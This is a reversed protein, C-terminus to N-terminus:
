ASGDCLTDKLIAPRTMPRNDNHDPNSRGWDLNFVYTNRLGKARYVEIIGLSELEQVVKMITSSSYGSYAQLVDISPSCNGDDQDGHYALSKLISKHAPCDHVLENAWTMAEGNM